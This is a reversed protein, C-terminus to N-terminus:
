PIRQLLCEWHNTVGNGLVGRDVTVIRYNQSEYAIRSGVAPTVDKPLFVMADCGVDEGQPGKVIKTVPEFRAKVTAATGFTIENFKNRSSIPTLTVSQNLLTGISM